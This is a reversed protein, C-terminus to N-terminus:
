WVNRTMKSFIFGLFGNLCVIMDCYVLRFKCTLLYEDRLQVHTIILVIRLSSMM